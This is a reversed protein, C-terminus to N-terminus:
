PNLITQISHCDLGNKTVLLRNRLANLVMLNLLVSILSCTMDTTVMVVGNVMGESSYWVEAESDNGGLNLSFFFLPGLSINKM